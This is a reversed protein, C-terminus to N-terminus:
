HSDGEASAEGEAAQVVFPASHVEGNIQFDFYLLYLGLTPAETAFDISPGSVDGTEPEAGEPHVHLYALDGDRLAVLHGFAGLYPEITTVPKGNQTVSLTLVSTAGVYLEGELQVDYGDVHAELTERQAPAPTVEGAVEVTRTLTVPDEEGAPIFDAFVRYSGAQEWMWPMAWSGDAGLEPHVHTFEAGDTRVVILHLDKEHSETYESVAEGHSDLIEFSL